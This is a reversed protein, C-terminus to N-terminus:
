EEPFNLYAFEGFLELAKRDYAKAADTENTFYGINILYGSFRIQAHWKSARKNWYLGKYNSTGTRSNRNQQNEQRTCLRLNERTNDLGNHNKHDVQIRSDTAEMIFRHLSITKRKGNGINLKGFVYFTKPKKDYGAYWSGTYEKDVRELDELDIIAVQGQSINIYVKDEIIEYKNKM